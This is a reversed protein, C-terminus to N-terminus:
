TLCNKGYPFSRRLKHVSWYLHNYCKKIKKAGEIVEQRQKSFTVINIPFINQQWLLDYKLTVESDSAYVGHEVITNIRSLGFNKLIKYQGYYRTQM